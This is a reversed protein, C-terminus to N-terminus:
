SAPSPLSHGCAAAAVLVVDPAPDIKLTSDLWFTSDLVFTPSRCRSPSTVHSLLLTSPNTKAVLRVSIVVNCHFEYESRMGKADGRSRWLMLDTELRRYEHPIHPTGPLM